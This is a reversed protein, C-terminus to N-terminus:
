GPEKMIARLAAVNKPEGLEVYRARQKANLKSELGRAENEQEALEWVEDFTLIGSNVLQPGPHLTGAKIAKRLRADDIPKRRRYIQALKKM